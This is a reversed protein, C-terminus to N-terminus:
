TASSRARRARPTACTSCPTARRASTSARSTAPCSARQAVPPGRDAADARRPGALHARRLRAPRRGRHRPRVLGLLGGGAPRLDAHRHEHLHPGPRPQDARDADLPRHLDRRRGDGIEPLLTTMEQGSAATAPSPTSRASAAQAGPGPAARDAPGEHVVRADAPRAAGRAEAQLRVARPAVPGGAQYLHIVRKAKPAFHLPQVVGALRDAEVAARRRRSASLRSAVWPARPRPGLGTRPRPVRPADDAGALAALDDTLIEVCM